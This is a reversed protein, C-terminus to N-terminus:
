AFGRNLVLVVLNKGRFDSLRINRGHTDESEFDPALEGIIIKSKMNESWDIWSKIIAM